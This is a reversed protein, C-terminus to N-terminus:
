HTAMILWFGGGTTCQGLQPLGIRSAPMMGPMPASGSNHVKSHRSQASATVSSFAVSNDAAPTLSNSLSSQRTTAALPARRDNHLTKQLALADAWLKSRDDDFVLAPDERLTVWVGHALEDELQSAEWGVYGFAILSKNPGKGIAMDRLVDAAASLAM